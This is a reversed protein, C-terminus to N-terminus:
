AAGANISQNNLKSQIIKEVHKSAKDICEKSVDKDKYDYMISDWKETAIEATVSPNNIERCLANVAEKFKDDETTPTKKEYSRRYANTSNKEDRHDKSDLDDDSDDIALLGQLAYKRAYSSSAGTVQAADMGKKQDSERAFAQSEIVTGCDFLIRATGKVYFRGELFVIDDSLIIFADHEKLLPKVSELIDEASRYKYKGFDNSREKGAKLTMQISILKKIIDKSIEKNEM